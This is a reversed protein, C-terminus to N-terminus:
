IKMFKLGIQQVKKPATVTVQDEHELIVLAPMGKIVIDKSDSQIGLGIQTTEKPILLKLEEEINKIAAKVQEQIAYLETLQPHNCESFDFWTYTVAKIIKASYLEISKQNGSLHKEAEELGLSKFEKDELVEKAVKEFRKIVTYAKLANVEGHKVASLIDRVYQKSDFSQSVNMLENVNSVEEEQSM